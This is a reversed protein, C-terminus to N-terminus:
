KFRTGNLRVEKLYADLHAQKYFYREGSKVYSILGAKRKRALNSKSMGIKPAAEKESILNDPPAPSPIGGGVVDIVIERLKQYLEEPTIYHILMQM